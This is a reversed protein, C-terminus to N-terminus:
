ASVAEEVMKKIKYYRLKKELATVAAVTQCFNNDTKAFITSKV